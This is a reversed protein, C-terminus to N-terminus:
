LLHFWNSSDGTFGTYVNKIRTAVDGGINRDTTLSLPRNEGFETESCLIDLSEANALLYTSAQLISKGNALQGVLTEAAVESDAARTYVTYAHVAQNELSAPAYINGYPMLASIFVDTTGM